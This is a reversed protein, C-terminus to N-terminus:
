VSGVHILFSLGVLMIFCGILFAYGTPRRYAFIMPPGLVLFIGIILLYLRTKFRTFPGTTDWDEAPPDPDEPDAGLEEEIVIIADDFDELDEDIITGNEDTVVWTDPGPISKLAGEHYGAMTYGQSLISFECDYETDMHTYQPGRTANWELDTMEYDNYVEARYYQNPADYFIDVWYWKSSNASYETPSWYEYRSGTYTEITFHFKNDDQTASDSVGFGIAHNGVYAQFSAKYGPEGLAHFLVNTRRGTTQDSVLSIMVGFKWRGVTFPARSENRLSGVYSYSVQTGVNVYSSNYVDWKASPDVEAWETYNMWLSPPIRWIHYGRYTENFIADPYGSPPPPEHNWHIVLQAEQGNDLKKDIFYRKEYGEVGLIHFGIADGTETGDHGDGDWHPHRILEDVIDTVDIEFWQSGYFQSTNYKTFASTYGIMSVDSATIWGLDQLEAIKMGYITVSSDADFTLTSSTRLRLTANELPEWWNIELERFVLFAHLDMNPDKIHCLSADIKIGVETIFADDHTDTIHITQEQPVIARVVPILSAMLILILIILKKSKM